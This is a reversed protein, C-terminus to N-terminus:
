LHNEKNKYDKEFICFMSLVFVLAPPIGRCRCRILRHHTNFQHSLLVETATKIGNKVKERVVWKDREAYSLKIPKQM